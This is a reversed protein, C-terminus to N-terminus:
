LRKGALSAEEIVEFIGGGPQDAYALKKWRLTAQNYLAEWLYESATAQQWPINPPNFEDLENEDETAPAQPVLPEERAFHLSGHKLVAYEYSSPDAVGDIEWWLDQVSKSWYLGLLSLNASHRVLYVRM